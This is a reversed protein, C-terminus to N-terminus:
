AVPVTIGFECFRGASFEIHIQGNLQDVEDRLVDLGVGRGADETVASATSFGPEFILATIENDSLAKGQSDEILKERIARARIGEVDLGAGDDRCTIQLRNEPVGVITIEVCGCPDKGAKVRDDPLEIGHVLSNRALQFIANKLLRHHRPPLADYGEIKWEIRMKKGRRSAITQCLDDVSRRLEESPTKAAPAFGLIDAVAAPKEAVPAPAPVPATTDVPKIVAEQPKDETVNSVATTIEGAIPKTETVGGTSGGEVHKVEAPSFSRRLGSIREVLMSTEKLQTQFGAIPVLVALLDENALAPNRRLDTLQDEIQHITKEFLHLGVSAAESKLNHALRFVRDVKDRLPNASATSNEMFIGNINTVAETADQLFRHLDASDVQLIEFLLDIQKERMLEGAQLKEELKVRETVDLLTVMVSAVSNTNGTSIRQFMFEVRKPQFGGEPSSFNLEVCKLPNFKHLQKENKRPDFLLDFYDSITKHRKEPLLPRLITLFNRGSLESTQLILKLEESSQAGITGDAKLLFLGQRVTAFIADTERKAADLEGTIIDFQQNANNLMFLTNAVQTKSYTLESKTTELTTNTKQLETKTDQLDFAQTKSEERGKKLKGTVYFLTIGFTVLLLALAVIQITYIQSKDMSVSSTGFYYDAAISALAVVVFIASLAILLVNKREPKSTSNEATFPALAAITDMEATNSPLATLTDM